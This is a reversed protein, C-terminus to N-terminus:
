YQAEILCSISPSTLKLTSLSRNKTQMRPGNEIKSPEDAHLFMIAAGSEEVEVEAVILRDCRHALRNQLPILM